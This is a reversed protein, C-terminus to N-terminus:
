KVVGKRIRLVEAVAVAPVAIRIMRIIVTVHDLGVREKNTMTIRIGEEIEIMMTRHHDEVAGVEAVADLKPVEAVAKVETRGMPVLAVLILLAPVEVVVIMTVMRNWAVVAEVEEGAVVAVVVIQHIMQVEVKAGVEADHGVDRLAVVIDIVDVIKKKKKRM